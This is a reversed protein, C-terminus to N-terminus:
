ATVNCRCRFLCRVVTALTSHIWVDAFYVGSQQLNQVRVPERCCFLLLKSTVAVPISGPCGGDVTYSKQGLGVLSNLEFRFSVSATECVQQWTTPTHFPCVQVSCLFCKITHTALFKCSQQQLCNIAIRRRRM